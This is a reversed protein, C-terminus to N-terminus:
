ENRIWKVPNSTAIRITQSWVIVIGLVAIIMIGTAILFPTIQIRYAFDQLFVESMIFSVPVGIVMAIAILILFSRSLLMVVNMASAGVIKRISVEKARVQSSYMAMGLMGLCALSIVLFTIYGVIVLMDKMGSQRYADDIEDEMMMYDIPHTPDHKKWVQNLSALVSAKQGSHIKANLYGIGALNYRLALPGIQNTLPRFHFDKVVGIVQLSISDDVYITEGIADHASTFGFQRVFTENLIVHKEANTQEDEIFNRGAVFKLSINEIYNQDVM